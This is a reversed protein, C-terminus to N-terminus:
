SDTFPSTLTQDDLKQECLFHNLYHVADHLNELIEDDTWGCERLRELPEPPFESIKTIDRIM